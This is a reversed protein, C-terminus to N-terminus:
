NLYRYNFYLIFRRKKIRNFPGRAHYGSTNAIIMSGKNANCSIKEHNKFLKYPYNKEWNDHNKKSNISGLYEACLRRLSIKHTKPLYCFAGNDEDTDELYIFVKFTDYPVDTHFSDQHDSINFKYNEYYDEFISFEPSIKKLRKNLNICIFSRIEKEKEILFDPIESSRFLELKKTFHNKKNIIIHKQFNNKYIQLLNNCQDKTIFNNKILYGKNKITEFDLNDFNLLDVNNKILQNKIFRIKEIIRFYIARFIQIGLLNLFFSNLYKPQPTFFFNFSLYVRKFVNLLFLSKLYEKNFILKGFKDPNIQYLKELDVFSFILLKIFSNNLFIQIYKNEIKSKM